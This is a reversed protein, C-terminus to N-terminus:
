GSRKFTWNEPIKGVAKEAISKFKLRPLFTEIQIKKIIPYDQITEESLTIVALYSSPIIVRKTATLQEDKKIKDTIIISKETGPKEQYLKKQPIIIEMEKETQDTYISVTVPFKTIFKITDPLSYDSNINEAGRTLTEAMLTKHIHEKTPRNASTTEM